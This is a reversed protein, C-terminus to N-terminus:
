FLQKGKNLLLFVTGQLSQNCFPLGVEEAAGPLELLGQVEIGLGFGEKVLLLVVQAESVGEFAPGVEEATGPLELM